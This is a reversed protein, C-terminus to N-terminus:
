CYRVSSRRNCLININPSEVFNNNKSKSQILNDLTNSLQQLIVFYMWYYMYYFPTYCMSVFPFLGDAPSINTNVKEIFVAKNQYLNWQFYEFPTFLVADDFHKLLFCILFYLNCPINTWHRFRISCIIDSVRGLLVYEPFAHYIAEILVAIM